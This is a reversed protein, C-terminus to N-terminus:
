QSEELDVPNGDKDCIAGIALYFIMGDKSKWRGVIPMDRAIGSVKTKTVELLESVSKAKEHGDIIVVITKDKSEESHAIQVGTREAVVSALAKLRCVREARLRESGSDDKLITSAVSVILRRGQGLRIIKAGGVEMLLPNARLYRDFPRDIQVESFGPTPNQAWLNLCVLLLSAAVFLVITRM